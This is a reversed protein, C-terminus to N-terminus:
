PRTPVSDILRGAGPQAHQMFQCHRSACAISSRRFAPRRRQEEEMGLRLSDANEARQTKSGATNQPSTRRSCLMAKRFGDTEEIADLVRPDGVGLRRERVVDDRPPRALVEARRPVAERCPVALAKSGPAKGAADPRRLEADARADRAGDNAQDADGCDDQRM